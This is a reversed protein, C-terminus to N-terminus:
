WDRSPVVLASGIPEASEYWRRFGDLENVPRDVQRAAVIDRGPDVKVIQWGYGAYEKLQDASPVAHIIWVNVAEKLRTARQIAAARAGIAVQRVHAPYAHGDEPAYGEPMLACAIRDLDVVVDNPGANERVYTTKGAAPPGTIIKIHPGRNRNQRKSNCSLCAPRLNSLADTGGQEVPIVHDKTTAVGKCGPLKLYCRRGYTDLVLRTLAQGARGGRGAGARGRHRRM